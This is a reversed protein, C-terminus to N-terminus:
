LIKHPPDIM